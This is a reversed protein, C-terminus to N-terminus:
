RLGIKKRVDKMTKQAIARAKEGGAALIAEVKKPTTALKARQARFNAFHEGIRAAVLRKLEGYKIPQSAAIRDAEHPKGFIELMKLLNYVGVLGAADTGIPLEIAEEGEGVSLSRMLTDEPVTLIGTTETVAKKIKEYILDPEDALAVYSKEGHSKSMKKLPDTLSRLKPTETLLPQAEPFMAGFKNNFFRAIDRTLEVHQVQDRGVPVRDGGYMLIDAAQLVPYDFLGMNVNADQHESKDKFQTMRELFSVPTVTNFIWCLETHEPVDSQVFITSKKPDLGLALLDSALDITQQRKTKPNFEGTLSHYDAIFFFCKAGSNQLQVWNRLAGVYNGIHLQGSSQAGSVITHSKKTPTLM